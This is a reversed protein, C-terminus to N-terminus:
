WTLLLFGAQGNGGQSAGVSSAAGGGGGSGFGSGQTGESQVMGGAGGSGFISGGGCGGFNVGGALGTAIATAGPSNGPGGGGLGGTGSVQGGLGPALTLVTTTGATISTATGDGGANPGAGGGAGASGVIITYVTGPTVSVSTNLIGEGGGGGGGGPHAGGVDNGAGGGGGAVGSVVVNTVWSPCVWLGTAIFMAQRNAVPGAQQYLNYMTALKYTADFAAAPTVLTPIVSFTADGSFNSTAAVTLTNTVSFMQVSEQTVFMTGASYSMGWPEGLLTMAEAITAATIVPQMAVSAGSDQTAQTYITNGVSDCVQWVYAGSGIIIARGATDLPVPNSNPITGFLDQYTTKPTAGDASFTWVKGGGLPQGANNFFQTKPLPLINM